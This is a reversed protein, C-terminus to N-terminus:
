CGKYNKAVCECALKKAEAIQAPPSNEPNYNVGICRAVARPIFIFVPQVTAPKIKATLTWV